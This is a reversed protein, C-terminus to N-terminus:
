QVDEYRIRALISHRTQFYTGEHDSIVMVYVQNDLGLNTSGFKVPIDVNLVITRAGSNDLIPYAAEQVGDWVFQWKIWASYEGLVLFNSSWNLNRLLNSKYTLRSDLNEYLDTWTQTSAGNNNKAVFCVLKCRTKNQIAVMQEQQVSNVTPTWALVIKKIRIRNGNRGSPGDGLPVQGVAVPVGISRDAGVIVEPNTWLINESMFKLLPSDNKRIVKKDKRKSGYDNHRPRKM